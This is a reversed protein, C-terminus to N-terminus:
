GSPWSRKMHEEVSIASCPIIEIHWHTQRFETVFFGVFVLFLCVFFCTTVACDYLLIM